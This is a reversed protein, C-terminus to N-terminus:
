HPLQTLNNYETPQRKMCKARQVQFHCEGASATQLWRKSLIFSAMNLFVATYKIVTSQPSLRTTVISTTTRTPQFLDFWQYSRSRRPMLLDHMVLRLEQSSGSVCCATKSVLSIGGNDVSGSCFHKTVQEQCTQDGEEHHPWWDQRSDTGCFVGHRCNPAALQFCVSHPDPVNAARRRSRAFVGCATHAKMDDGDWQYNNVMFMLLSNQMLCQFHLLNLSSYFWRVTIMFSIFFLSDSWVTQPQMSTNYLECTNEQKLSSNCLWPWVWTLLVCSALLVICHLAICNGSVNSIFHEVGLVNKRREKKAGCLM